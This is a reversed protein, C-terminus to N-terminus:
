SRRDAALGFLSRALHLRGEGAREIMARFYGGPRSIQEPDRLAKEAVVALCAAAVYRGQQEVAQAYASPSVGILVRIEEAAECIAPWSTLKHRIVAQLESCASEVLGASVDDLLGHQSAGQARVQQRDKQTARQTEQHNNRGAGRPRAAQRLKPQERAPDGRPEKELAMEVASGNDTKTNIHRGNPRTRKINSESSDPRNTISLSTVPIDGTASMNESFAAHDSAASDLADQYLARMRELRFGLLTHREELITQACARFGELGECAEDLDAIARALRTLERRAAQDAKIQAQFADAAVRFSELNVCAPTFDLGYAEIHGSANDKQVYRRGTPSDRYALIGAEVLRKLCRIVTRPHRSTYESLRQNSIAVVPRRGAKFDEAQVLGLLIDLVHYSTGDIGLAPAVRKLVLSLDQKTVVPRGEQQSLVASALIGPTVKRFTAISTTSM